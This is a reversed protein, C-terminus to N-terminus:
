GNSIGVPKIKKTKDLDIQKFDGDKKFDSGIVPVIKFGEPNITNMVLWENM